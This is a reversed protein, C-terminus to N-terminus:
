LLIQPREEPKESVVPSDGVKIRDEGLGQLVTEAIIKSVDTHREVVILNDGMLQKWDDITTQRSGAGTEKIHLHYVHYKERAKDLLQTASFDEYQGDGMIEQFVKKPVSKLTPEDGITFLFGKKGRKEFSDLSTHYAAFYWALLYSEGANGGGGGELYVDTLWKDLLDDNAEFQGVQLPSQDCEHDGVALFLMAPDQIGRQLITGMITPLGDKVLHHPISGMSGTVDLALIIPVVNPHESSDRAERIRVGYPNMSSNINRQAFIETTSKHYYGRSEAKVRRVTADFVGTVTNTSYTGGGM